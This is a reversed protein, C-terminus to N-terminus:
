DSLLKFLKPDRIKIITKHCVLRMGNWSFFSALFRSGVLLLYSGGDWISM